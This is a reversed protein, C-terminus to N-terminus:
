NIIARCQWGHKALLKQVEEQQKEDELDVHVQYKTPLDINKPDEELDIDILDVLLVDQLLGPETEQLEAQVTLLYDSLSDDFKGSIKQSNAAVNAAHQMAQSWNVIRVPFHHEDDIRIIGLEANADLVEIKRDGWTKRIQDMRQHGCVLEFTRQNFVIGSLDGFRDLSNQLGKAAEESIKRPNDSDAALESTDVVALAAPKPKAKKKAM